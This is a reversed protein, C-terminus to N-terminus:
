AADDNPKKKPRGPQNKIHSPAIERLWDRLTHEGKYQRGNGYQQIAKHKAMQAIRIDPYIDWLTRAISQCLEKDFLSRRVTQKDIEPLNNIPSGSASTTAGIAALLGDDFWFDPFPLDEFVCCRFLDINSILHSDLVSKDYIRGYVCDKYAKPIEPVEFMHHDYRNPSKSEPNSSFVEDLLPIRGALVLRSLFRLSDQIEFPLDESDTKNPDINQWRHAVEWVSLYNFSAM